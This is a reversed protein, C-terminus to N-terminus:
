NNKVALNLKFDELSCVHVESFRSEFASTDLEKNEKVLILRKFPKSSNMGKSKFIDNVKMMFWPENEATYNIVVVQSNALFKLHQNYTIGKFNTSIAMGSNSNTSILKKGVKEDDEDAVVYVEPLNDDGKRMDEGSLIRRYIKKLEELTVKLVLTNQTQNQDRQIKEVFIQNEEDTIDFDSPIWIIRKVESQKDAAYQASLACQHEILSIQKDAFYKSYVLPIPHIILNCGKILGNVQQTCENYDNNFLRDPLVEYGMETLDRFLNDRDSSQANDTQALFIKGKKAVKKDNYKEFIEIAIDTIREWYLDNHETSSRRFFRIEGTEKIEEWFRYIKFKHFPFGKEASKFPDINLLISNQSDALSVVENIFPKDESDKVSLFIFGFRDTASPNKDLLAVDMKFRNLCKRIDQFFSESFNATENNSKRFRFDLYITKDM